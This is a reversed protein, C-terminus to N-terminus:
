PQPSTSLTALFHICSQCSLRSASMPLCSEGRPDPLLPVRFPLRPASVTTSRCSVHCLSTCFPDHPQAWLNGPLTRLSLLLSPLMLLCLCSSACATEERSFPGRPRQNNARVLCFIAALILQPIGIEFCAGIQVASSCIHSAPPGESVALRSLHVLSGTHKKGKSFWSLSWLLGHLSSSAWFVTAGCVGSVAFLGGQSIRLLLLVLRSGDHNPCCCSSQHAQM